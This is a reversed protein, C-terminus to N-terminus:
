VAPRPPTLPSTAPQPTLRRLARRQVRAKRASERALRDALMNFEHRHGKVRTFTVQRGGLLRDIETWLDRNMQWGRGRGGGTVHHIVYLSDTVVEIPLQIERYCLAQAVAALEMRNENTEPVGGSDTHIIRGRHEAVFAWGGFRGLRNGNNLCCGDTWLRVRQVDWWGRSQPM